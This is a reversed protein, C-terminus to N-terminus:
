KSVDDMMGEASHTQATLTYLAAVNSSSTLPQWSIRENYTVHFDPKANSQLHTEHRRCTCIQWNHM